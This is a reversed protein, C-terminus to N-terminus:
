YRSSPWFSISVAGAVGDGGVVGWRGIALDVHFPGAYIGLGGTYAFHSFDTALGVRLPLMNTLRLEGGAAVTRDWRSRLEGGILEEYDASVTLAPLAEFVVGMRLVKPVDATALFEDIEAQKEAPLEAYTM